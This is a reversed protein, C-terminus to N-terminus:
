CAQRRFPHGYLSSERRRPRGLVWASTTESPLIPVRCHSMSLSMRRSGALLGHKDIFSARTTIPEVTIKGFFAMDAPDNGTAGVGLNKTMVGQQRVSARMQQRCHSRRLRLRQLCCIRAPSPSFVTKPAYSSQLGNSEHSGRKLLKSGINRKTRSPVAMQLRWLFVGHAPQGWRKPTASHRQHRQGAAMRSCQQGFTKISGSIMERTM